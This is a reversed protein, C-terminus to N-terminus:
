PEIREPRIPNEVPAAPDVPGAVDREVAAKPDVVGGIRASVFSQSPGSVVRPFGASMQAPIWVATDINLIEIYEILVSSLSQNHSRAQLDCNNASLRHRHLDVWATLDVRVAAAIRRHSDRTAARAV